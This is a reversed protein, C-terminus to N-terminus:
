TGDRPKQTYRELRTELAIMREELRQEVLESDKKLRQWSMEYYGFILAGLIGPPTLLILLIRRHTPIKWKSWFSM